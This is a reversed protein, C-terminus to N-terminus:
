ENRLAALLEGRLALRTALWTWLGGSLLVGGLTWAVSRLPFDAGPTLLTPLVAAAAAGVGLALGLGLLAAHEILVLAELRRRRFGVALLLGLEARRELVNRLVVVGLGASGLLLGLGGLVQFTNLYTNQVANFQGLRAAAPTLELGVDQLARSLLASVEAVRNTPCDILFLRYGSQGPFRSAFEAEDILLSGQLISNAVGGVLKVDFARGREDIFALTEGVKKHLAWRISNVDGIAPVASGTTDGSRRLLDWGRRREAGDMVRAFTFAGRRALLEPNVGLLRPRQARNLNLCSAEDGERVRMPVFEVGALERDSLGFFERGAATNLDQVVPLATQGILAFGGTGAERRGADRSADLKFIAISSVVFAGGALLGITALSRSRRRGCGRWGLSALSLGAAASG